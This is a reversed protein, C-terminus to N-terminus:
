EWNSRFRDIESETYFFRSVRSGYVEDLLQSPLRLRNRVQEYLTAEGTNARSRRRRIKLDAPLDLFEGLYREGKMGLKELKGVLLQFRGTERIEFGADRDFPKEFLDFELVGNLERDFWELKARDGAALFYSTVKARM